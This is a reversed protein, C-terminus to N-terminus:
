AAPRKGSRELAEKWRRGAVRRPQVLPRGGGRVESASLGPVPVTVTAVEAEQPQEGAAPTTTDHNPESATVAVAVSSPLKRPLAVRLLGHICSASMNAVDAAAPLRLAHKAGHGGGAAPGDAVSLRLTRTGGPNTDVTVAVDQAGGACHASPPPLACRLAGFKRSTCALRRLAPRRAKAQAGPLPVSLTWGAASEVLHPAAAAKAATAGMLRDALSPEFAFPFLLAM